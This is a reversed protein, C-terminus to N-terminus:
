TFWIVYFIKASEIIKDGLIFGLVICITETHRLLYGIPLLVLFTVLYYVGSMERYGMYFLLIVLLALTVLFINRMSFKNFWNVYKVLPWSLMLCVFNVMIFYWVMTDFLGTAVFNTHNIVVNKTDILSLLIAESTSIPIGILILPLLQVFQASNNATEAAVLSPLDGKGNIYQGQKERSRRTIGYAINTSLVVGVHPVMGLISGIFSGSLSQKITKCYSILHEVVTSLDTYTKFHQSVKFDTAVIMVPIVYLAVIVPFFPLGFKLDPLLDYPIWAEQTFRMLHQNYGISGLWIGFSFLATNMAWDNGYLFIVIVSAFLLLTLQVNNNFYNVILDIIYPMVALVFALTVFAGVASGIAAGSIAFNGQRNIFLAHGEKVAPLSSTEGPVGLITASVSGAFQGAVGASMYFLVMQLLSLDLLFPYTLVLLVILGVGPILGAIYGLILGCAVVISDLSLLTTVDSM